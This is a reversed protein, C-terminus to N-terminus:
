NLNLERDQNRRSRESRDDSNRDGDLTRWTIVKENIKTWALSVMSQFLRYDNPNTFQQLNYKGTEKLELGYRKAKPCDLCAWYGALQYKVWDAMSGTKLDILVTGGMEGVLDLRGAYNLAPNWVSMESHQISIGTEKKFLLYADVFPQIIPDVTKWNLINREILEVAKHVASGRVRSAEDFFYPNIFGEIKLVDTVSLLRIKSDPHTYIHNVPDFLVGGIM